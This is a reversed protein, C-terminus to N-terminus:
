RSFPKTERHPVAWINTEMKIPIGRRGFPNLDRHLPISSRQTASKSHTVIVVRWSGPVLTQKRGGSLM